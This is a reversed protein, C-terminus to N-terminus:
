SSICSNYKAVAANYNDVLNKLALVADNVKKAYYNYEQIKQNYYGRDLNPSNKITILNDYMIIAEAQMQKISATSDDILVKNQSSPKPCNSLPEGFVQVAITVNDGKFEGRKVAVGLEKYKGNLINARHGPSEMWASVIGQDDGFEGLALNEGILLYDYSYQKALESVSKGDPSEHEFYQNNFLDKVRMLAINDLVTNATLLNLANDEREINTYKLIGSDSSHFIQRAEQGEDDPTLDYKIIPDPLPIPTAPNPTIIPQKPIVSNVKPITSTTILIPDNNVSPKNTTSTATIVTSTAVPTSSALVQEVSDPIDLSIYTNPDIYDNFIYKKQM